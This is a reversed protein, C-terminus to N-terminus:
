SLVGSGYDKWGPRTLSNSQWVPSDRGGDEGDGANDDDGARPTGEGDSQGLGSGNDKDGEGQGEIVVRKSKRVTRSRITDYEAKIEEPICTVVYGGEEVVEKMDMLLAAEASHTMDMDFSFALGGDMATSVGGVSAKFVVPDPNKSGQVSVRMIYKHARCTILMAAQMSFGFPVGFVVRIRPPREMDKVKDVTGIFQIDKDSVEM